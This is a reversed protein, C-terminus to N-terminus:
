GTLLTRFSAASARPSSAFASASGTSSAASASPSGSTRFAARMAMAWIPVRCADQVRSLPPAACGFRSAGHSGWRRGWLRKFLSIFRDVEDYMRSRATTDRACVGWAKAVLNIGETTGRVFIIEDTSAANIFRLVTDRAGEYADTARGAIAHAARHINSNEHAYFYALRDFVAQPKQTAEANDFWVLQKGNV